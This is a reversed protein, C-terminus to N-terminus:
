KFLGDPVGAEAKEPPKVGLARALIAAAAQPTVADQRVGPKIEQGYVVLPVHTDYPHPTGHNTGTLYSSVLYYPKAIVYLDGSRDHHFSKRVRQGIVDDPALEALDARTYATLIYPQSKLFRQLTVAVDPVNLGRSEILRRNLYISSDSFSELYRTKAVEPEGYAKRLFQESAAVGNVPLVRGSSLGQVRRSEPLPCIGHDATMAVVYRGKGVTEDLFNLFDRIMVDSRLTIDLVEHSDPGWAHGVLDNSSFSVVLLDPTDDSGLREAKIATKAFEFLLENGAPSNAVSDYYRKAPKKDDAFPHPFVNGQGSGKGEGPAQDPGSYKTYDINPRFREWSKGFWQDALRRSNFEEVWPHLRERYYTSTVFIGKDAWYCADPKRGVPLIASRDKLSLGVVRGQGSTAEKLVDGLTPALMRLPSGAGKPKKEADDGEKADKKETTKPEIEPPPVREYRMTTACYVSTAETRDYWNNGVIGHRDPSCGSMISAHGPGTATGAYPYHCNQFWAGDRTLRRFGDEVYLSQWRSLYDGRMQDFVILVALRPRGSETSPQAALYPSTCCAAFLSLLGIRM